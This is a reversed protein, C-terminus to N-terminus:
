QMFADCADDDAGALFLEHGEGEMPRQACVGDDGRRAFFACESCTRGDGPEPPNWPAGRDGPFCGPPLNWGSAPEYAEMTM